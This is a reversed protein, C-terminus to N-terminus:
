GWAERAHGGGGSCAPGRARSAAPMCPLRPSLPMCPIARVSRASKSFSDVLPVLRVVDAASPRRGAPARRPDLPPAGVCAPARVRPAPTARWVRPRRAPRGRDCRDLQAGPTAALRRASGHQVQPYECRWRRNGVDGVTQLPNGPRSVHYPGRVADAALREHGGVEDVVREVRRELVHFSKAHRALVYRQQAEVRDTGDARGCRSAVTM